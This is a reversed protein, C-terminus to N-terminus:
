GFQPRLFAGHLRVVVAAFAGLSLFHAGLGGGRCRRLVVLDTRTNFRRLALTAVNLRRALIVNAVNSLLGAALLAVLRGAHAHWLILPYFVLGSVLRFWILAM